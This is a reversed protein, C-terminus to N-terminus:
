RRRSRRPLAHGQAGARATGPAHRGRRHVRRARPRVAGSRAADGSDRQLQDRRLAPQARPSNHHIARAALEKGTGTEGTILVTSSTARRDGAAPVPRADGPQPRRPRRHSLARRAALALYANEPSSGGSSSRRTTLVHLLADFQFPKTIFDAAGQKIADVADKVTGFGTIVIAIIDRTASSRPTSCRAATSARCVCTPSSSTSPSSPWGSSRRKAAPRGARRRVRSRRAARRDGRAAGGEDDVLLLHKQSESM